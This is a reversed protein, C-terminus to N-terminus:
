VRKNVRGVAKVCLYAVRGRQREVKQNTKLRKVGGWFFSLPDAWGGGSARGISPNPPPPTFHLIAM